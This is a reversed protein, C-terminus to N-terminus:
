SVGSLVTSFCILPVFPTVHKGTGLGRFEEGLSVFGLAIYFSISLSFTPLPLVWM